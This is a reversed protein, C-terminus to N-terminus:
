HLWSKRRLLVPLVVIMVIIIGMLVIGDTSGIESGNETVEPTATGQMYFAAASLSQNSERVNRTAVGAVILFGVILLLLTGQVTRPFIKM